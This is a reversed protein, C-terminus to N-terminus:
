ALWIHPKNLLFIDSNIAFLLARLPMSLLIILDQFTKKIYGKSKLNKIQFIDLLLMSYISWNLLNWQNNYKFNRTRIPIVHIFLVGLNADKFYAFSRLFIYKFIM